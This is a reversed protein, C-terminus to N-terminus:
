NLLSNQNFIQYFFFHFCNKCRYIQVFLAFSSLSFFVCFCIFWISRVIWSNNKQLIFYSSRSIAFSSCPTFIHLFYLIGTTKWHSILGLKDTWMFHLSFFFGSIIIVAHILELKLPMQILPQTKNLHSRGLNTHDKILKNTVSWMLQEKDTHLLLYPHRSSLVWYDIEM